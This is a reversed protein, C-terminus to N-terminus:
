CLQARLAEIGGARERMLRVPVDGGYVHPFRESAPDSPDGPEERVTLGADALAALDIETIVVDPRDSYAFDWVRLTQDADWSGHMFGQEAITVGRTSATYTGTSRAADWDEPLAMHLLSTRTTMPARYGAMRLRLGSLYGGSM